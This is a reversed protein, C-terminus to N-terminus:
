RGSGQAIQQLQGATMLWRLAGGLEDGASFLDVRAVGSKGVVVGGDAKGFILLSILHGLHPQHGVLFLDRDPPLAALGRYLDDKAPPLALSDKVEVKEIRLTQALIEATQRARVLPSTWIEQGGVGLRVLGQCVTRTVEIGEPTLTRDEDTQIGEKGVPLADGHRFLYLPM